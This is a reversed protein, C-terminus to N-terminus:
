KKVLRGGATNEAFFVIDDYQNKDGTICISVGKQKWQISMAEDAIIIQCQIDNLLANSTIKDSKSCENIYIREGNFSFYICYFTPSSVPPIVAIESPLYGEPLRNPLQLKFKFYKQADCFQEFYKPVVGEKVAEAKSLLAEDFVDDSIEENVKLYNYITKSVAADDIYYEEKFLLLIGNIEGIWLKKMYRNQDIKYKMGVVRLKINGSMEFGYFEYNNDMTIQEIKKEMDTQYLEDIPFCEKIQMKNKIQDYYIYQNRNYIEITKASSNEIKLLCPSKYTVISETISKGFSDGYSETTQRYQISRLLTDDTRVIVNKMSGPDPAAASKLCILMFVATLM